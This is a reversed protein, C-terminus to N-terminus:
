IITNEFNGHIYSVDRSILHGSGSDKVAVTGSNAEILNNYM